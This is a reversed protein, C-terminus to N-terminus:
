HPLNAVDEVEGGEALCELVDRNLIKCRYLSIMRIWKRRQFDSMKRSITELRLGLFEGMDTRRVPLEFEGGDPAGHDAFALLFTALKQDGSQAGVTTLQAQAAGLQRGMQRLLQSALAPDRSCLEPIRAVPISRIKVATITECSNSYDEDGELGLISGENFFGVVQRQGDILTRYLKVWGSEVVFLHARADGEFFLHQHAAVQRATRQNESAGWNGVTSREFDIVNGGNICM